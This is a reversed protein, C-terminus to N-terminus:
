AVGGSAGGVLEAPLGVAGAGVGPFALRIRVLAELAREFDCRGQMRVADGLVRAAVAAQGEDRLGRRGLLGIVEDKARRQPWVDLLVARCFREVKALAEAGDALYGVVLEVAFGRVNVHPHEILRDVLEGPDLRGFERRALGVAADQVDARNSDLMGLLARVGLRAFDLHDELLRLAVARTDAWDSEALALLVSPDGEWHARASRVLAQGAFRVAALPHQALAVVREIGLAEMAGPRGGLLHGAVGQASPSGEAIWALLEDTTLRAGLADALGERCVRALSEYRGPEPEAGRLVALLRDALARHRSNDTELWLLVLDAVVARTVADPSTLLAAVRDPDHAWAAVNARLFRHGIERVFPRPDAALRDVLAWDPAGGEFRRGIETVAVDVTPEYPADLMGVLAEVSAGALVGPHRGVGRHAFEHVEVLRAASLLRVYAAPRADWLGAYAEERVGGGAAGAAKKGKRLRFKMSRGVFEYRGGAGWLIRHLLYCGAFAGYLKEPPRADEPAYHILAEAAAAAYEDPRYRALARLHRWAARRVYDQTRRGFIRVSREAGDYGSKVTATKGATGRGRAEVEHALWGLTAHDGRLMSRKLISKVYRWVFPRDFAFGRVLATAAAVGAPTGREYLLDAVLGHRQGEAGKAAAVVAGVEELTPAQGDVPLLADRVAAPLESLTRERAAVLGPGDGLNRLAEVASRRRSLLKRGAYARVAGAARGDGLRGLADIVACSEDVAKPLVALLADVAGPPGAWGLRWAARGRAAASDSTLGAMASHSGSPLFGEGSLGAVVEGHAAALEAGAYPGYTGGKTLQGGRAGRAVRLLFADSRGYSPEVSVVAVHDPGTPKFLRLEARIM